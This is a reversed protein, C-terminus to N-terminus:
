VVYLTTIRYREITKLFTPLSFKRLVVLPTANFLSLHVTVVLGYIHYSICRSLDATAM